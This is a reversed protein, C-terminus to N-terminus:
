PAISRGGLAQALSFTLGFYIYAFFGRIAEIQRATLSLRRAEPRWVILGAEDADRLMKLVHSRSVGFRSSWGAVSIPLSQAEDYIPLDSLIDCLMLLGGNRDGFPGIDSGVAGMRRRSARMAQGMALYYAPLFAPQDFGGIMEAAPRSVLAAAEVDVKVRAHLFDLLEPTPSLPHLRRDGAGPIEVLGGRDLLQATLAEARGPSALEAEVAIDRLRGVTLGEPAFHQGMALVMLMHTGYDRYLRSLVTPSRALEIAGVASHRIAEDLRPHARIAALLQRAADREIEGTRDGGM